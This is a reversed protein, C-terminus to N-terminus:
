KILEKIAEYIKFSPNGKKYELMNKKLEEIKEQNHLLDNIKNALNEKSLDKEEMMEIAKKDYLEKANFYQHNNSVNPSPIIISPKLLGMIEFLTGAGARDSAEGQPYLPLHPNM